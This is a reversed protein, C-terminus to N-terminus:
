KITCLRTESYTSLVMARSGKTGQDPLTRVLEIRLGESFSPEAVSVTIAGQSVGVVHEHLLAVEEVVARRSLRVRGLNLGTVHFVRTRMPRGISTARVDRAVLGVIVLPFQEVYERKQATEQVGCSRIDVAQVDESMNFIKKSCPVPFSEDVSRSKHPDEKRLLLTTVHQRTSLSREEEVLRKSEVTVAGFFQPHSPTDACRHWLETATTFVSCLETLSM